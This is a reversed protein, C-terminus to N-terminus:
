KAGFSSDIKDINIKYNFDAKQNKDKPQNKWLKFTLNMPGPTLPRFALQPQYPSGNNCGGDVKCSQGLHIFYTVEQPSDAISNPYIFKVNNKATVYLWKYGFDVANLPNLILENGRKSTLYYINPSNDFTTTILKNNKDYIFSPFFKLHNDYCFEELGENKSTYAKSFEIGLLLHPNNVFISEESANGESSMQGNFPSCLKYKLSRWPKGDQIQGFVTESPVYNSTNFISHKVFYKRLYVIESKKLGNFQLCPFFWLKSEPKHITDLFSNHNKILTLDKKMNSTFNNAQYVIYGVLGIILFIIIGIAIKIQNDSESDNPM